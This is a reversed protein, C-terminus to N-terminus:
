RRARCLGRRMGGNTCDREVITSVSGPAIAGPSRRMAARRARRRSPLRQHARRQPARSEPSRSRGGARCTPQQSRSRRVRGDRGRLAGGGRLGIPRSSRLDDHCPEVSVRRALPGPGHPRREASGGQDRSQEDHGTASTRIEGTEIVHDRAHQGLVICRVAHVLAARLFGTRNMQFAFDTRTRQPRDVLGIGPVTIQDHIQVAVQIGRQRDELRARLRAERRDAIRQQGASERDHCRAIGGVAVGDLLAHLLRMLQAPEERRANRLRLAREQQALRHAPQDPEQERLLERGLVVARQEHAADDAAAVVLDLVEAVDAHQEVRDVGPDETAIELVRRDNGVDVRLHDTRDERRDSAVRLSKADDLQERPM